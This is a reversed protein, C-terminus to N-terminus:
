LIIFTPEQHCSFVPTGTSFIRPTSNLTAGIYRQTHVQVQTVHFPLAWWPALSCWVQEELRITTMIYINSHWVLGLKRLVHIVSNVPYSLPNLEREDASYHNAAHCLREVSSKFLWAWRLLEEVKGVHQVFTKCNEYAVLPLSSIKRRLYSLTFPREGFVVQNLNWDVNQRKQGFM